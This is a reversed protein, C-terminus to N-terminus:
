TDPDIASRFDTFKGGPGPPLSECRVFAITYDYRFVEIIAIRLREIEFPTLPREAVYRVELRDPATQVIQRQIIPAIDTWIASNMHVTFTRGTPDVALDRTRGAILELTPLGRGCSCAPGPAALDGLEYRILPMAFNQLDTVVVRGTEGPACPTGDPRLIELLVHESQVHYQRERPCQLAIMGMENCSYIDVVEVQWHRAALERLDPAALDAFGILLRLSDPRLGVRASTEVLARLNGNNSLLYAPRQECLWELQTVLDAVSSLTVLPGTRFALSTPVQWDPESGDPVATRIIAFKRSQDLEHWLYSRIQLGHNVLLSAGSVSVSLPHGTSGSTTAPHPGGLSRPHSRAKLLDAHRQVDVKALIPWRLFTREDLATAEDIGAAAFHGAYFPVETAAFTILRRLQRFQAERLAAPSLWQSHDLQALLALGVQGAAPPLAPWALGPSAQFPLWGIGDVPGNWM